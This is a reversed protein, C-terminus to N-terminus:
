GEARRRGLGDGFGDLDSDETASQKFREEAVCARNLHKKAPEFQGLLSLYCALNYHLIAYDPHLELGRLAVDKAEEIQDMERLAFAWHMWGGSQDPYSEALHMAIDRMLDWNKAAHYLDVRMSPVEPKMWEDWDIAELEDSAKNVMGLDIHGRAFQLRRSTPIVSAM